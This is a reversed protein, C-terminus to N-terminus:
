WAANSIYFMWLVETERKEVREEGTGWRCWWRCWRRGMVWCVGVAGMWDVVLFVGLGLGLGLRLRFRM